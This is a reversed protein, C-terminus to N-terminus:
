VKWREHVCLFEFVREHNAIEGM